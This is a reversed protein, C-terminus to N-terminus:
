KATRKPAIADAPTLRVGNARVGILSLDEVHAAELPIDVQELTMRSVRIDRVPAQVHGRVHIGVRTRLSTVNDIRVREFRPPYEGGRYSHYDNTFILVTDTEGAVINRIHVDTILGGRDLNAKFYLAHHAKPAVWDEIFINRVGGSMESGIAVAGGTDGSYRCRRVVIDESPRNVRWGDQDRGSKIAVGDDGVDFDCNEVLVRRSSDPDVGDSNIHRSRFRVNRVVVDTCYVPHIMWFPSDILEVGEVLLRRCAVFEIFSPRLRRDGVFVRDNLPAGDRGMDRLLTQQPKQTARWPLWNSAGQGDIRGKGTIAIDTAGRAYIFPSYSFCEVGEWRTFVPPLYDEAAGSFVLHAGEEVHLAVRSKLHLPGKCAWLGAPVVVRGGGARAVHDIAALLSPRSDDSGFTAGHSRISTEFRPIRPREISQRITRARRWPDGSASNDVDTQCAAAALTSGALTLVRRRDIDIGRIASPM